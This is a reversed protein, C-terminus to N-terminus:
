KEDDETRSGQRGTSGPVNESRSNRNGKNSGSMPETKENKNGSHRTGPNGKNKM